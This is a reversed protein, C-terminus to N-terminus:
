RDDGGVQNGCRLRQDLAVGVAPRDLRHEQLGAVQDPHPLRAGAGLAAHLTHHGEAQGAVAQQDDPIAVVALGGGIECGVAGARRPVPVLLRDRDGVHEGREPTREPYRLKPLTVRVQVV